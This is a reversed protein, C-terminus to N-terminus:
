SPNVDKQCARTDARGSVNDNRCGVSLSSGPARTAISRGYVLTKSGASFASNAWSSFCAWTAM